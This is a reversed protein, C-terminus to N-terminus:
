IIPNSRNSNFIMQYKLNLESLVHELLMSLLIAYGSSLWTRPPDDWGAKSEARQPESRKRFKMEGIPTEAIQTNQSWTQRHRMWNHRPRQYVLSVPVMIRVLSLIWTMTQYIILIFCVRPWMQPQLPLISPLYYELHNSTTHQAWNSLWTHSQLRRSQLRDPEETWLIEWVLISSHIAMEKGLPDEQGLSLIRTEQTEQM